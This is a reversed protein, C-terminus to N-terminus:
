WTSGAGNGALRPSTLELERATRPQAKASSRPPAAHDLLRALSRLLPNGGDRGRRRGTLPAAATLLLLLLLLLVLLLSLRPPADVGEEEAGL